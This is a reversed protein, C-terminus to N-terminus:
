TVLRGRGRARRGADRPRVLRRLRAGNIYFTPTGNVGSRVGGMFDERVREAHAHRHWTPTTARRPRPRGGRRLRAPRRRRAPAPARLPVDHMPWFRGQAAAAEAAEAAREAYQHSTTIPFNRFVFRMRDGLRAQAEQVIPYRRRRLVPVPLRRVRGADGARRGPGPHPRARPRGPRHAGGGLPTTSVDGAGEAPGRARGPDRRRRPQGRRPLRLELTVVGDGDLVFLARRSTGAQTTTPATRGAVGRGQARLRGAAPLHLNRDTPSPRTPGCTTWRYAWCCPTSASSSPCCCRTSASSTRCVPSFDAPYFVLVVPRGRLDSLSTAEEATSRLEFDPAPTGAPLPTM